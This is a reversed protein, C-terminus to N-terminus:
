SNQDFSLAFFLKRYKQSDCYAHVNKFSDKLRNSYSTEKIVLFLLKSQIVSSGLKSICGVHMRLDPTFLLLSELVEDRDIKDSVADDADKSLPYM